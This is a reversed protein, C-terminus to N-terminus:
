DSFKIRDFDEWDIVIEDDETFIIIGKNDSDVDNSGRLKFTRGDKLTVRSSHYSIKEISDILGFEVDFDIDQYEGDLLEWTYEEDDDWQIRGTYEDGDEAYVTGYLEKGGDFDDYDGLTPPDDFVVFDFEDWDVIIRGLSFDSIVIGRNGSDVDNSDDLRLQKGDKLTVESSNSSRREIKEIKEFAIERKRRRERGDLIDKDYIEDMDWCIFGTFEHGRRTTVTGYLRKGFTSETRRGSEFDIRDIDDWYLEFTGEKIDDVLIERVDDGIDTSGKELYIEEGSKLVLIVDDSGDPILSKIHGMRIGSQASSGGWIFGHDDESYVTIGFIQIRRDRRDRDRDRYRGRHRRELLKTGDLIDQWSGENHDWRIFGEYVEDDVTYVKGYLEGSAAPAPMAMFLLTILSGLTFCLTKM